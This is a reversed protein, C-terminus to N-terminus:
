KIITLGGNSDKKMKEYPGIIGRYLEQKACELIGIASNFTDYCVKNKVIFHHILSTIVYNCDGTFEIEKALAKIHKNFKLRQQQTIYPM